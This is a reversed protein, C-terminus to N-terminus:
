VTKGDGDIFVAIALVVELHRRATEYGSKGAALFGHGESPDSPRAEVDWDFVPRDNVASKHLFVGALSDVEIVVHGVTMVITERIGNQPRQEMVMGSFHVKIFLVPQRVSLCIEFKRLHNPCLETTSVHDPHLVIM